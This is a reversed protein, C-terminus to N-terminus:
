ASARFILDYPSRNPARVISVDNFIDQQLEDLMKSARRLKDGFRLRMVDVAAHAPAAMATATVTAGTLLAKFGFGAQQLFLLFPTLALTRRRLSSDTDESISSVVVIALMPSAM